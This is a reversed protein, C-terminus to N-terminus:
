PYFTWRKRRRSCISWLIHHLSVLPAHRNKSGHVQVPAPRVVKGSKVKEKVAAMGDKLHLERGVGTIM